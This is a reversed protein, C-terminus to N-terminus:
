SSRISSPAIESISPLNSSRLAKRLEKLSTYIKKDRGGASNYYEVQFDDNISVMDVATDVFGSPEKITIKDIPYTHHEGNSNTIQINYYVMGLVRWGARLSGYTTRCRCRRMCQHLHGTTKLSVIGLDLSSNGKICHEKECPVQGPFYEAYYRRSRFASFFKRDPRQTDGCARCLVPSATDRQEETIYSMAKKYDSKANRLDHELQQTATLGRPRPLSGSFAGAPIVELQIPRILGKALLFAKSAEALDRKMRVRTRRRQGEQALLAGHDYEGRVGGGNYNAVAMKARYMVQFSDIVRETPTDLCDACMDWRCYKCAHRMGSGSKGCGNCKYNSNPYPMDQTQQASGCPCSRIIKATSRQCSACQPGSHPGCRGDFLLLKVFWSKGKLAEMVDKGIFSGCYNWYHRARWTYNVHKYKPSHTMADGRDNVYAPRVPRSHGEGDGSLGVQRLQGQRREIQFRGHKTDIVCSDGDSLLKAIQANQQPGYPSWKGFENDETASELQCEYRAEPVLRVPRKYGEGSGGLGVQRLQGHRREIQFRGYKTHIVCSDGDSLLKAIQANQQPGYPSWKGALQCEYRAESLQNCAKKFHAIAEKFNKTLRKLSDKASKNKQPANDFWETGGCTPCKKEKNNQRKSLTHGPMQNDDFCRKCSFCGGM